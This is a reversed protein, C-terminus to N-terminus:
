QHNTLPHTRVGKNNRDFGYKAILDRTKDNLLWLAPDKNLLGAEVKFEETISISNNNPRGESTTWVTCELPSAASM